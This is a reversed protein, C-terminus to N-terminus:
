LYDQGQAQRARLDDQMSALEAPMEPLPDTPRPPRRRGKTEKIRRQEEACEQVMRLSSLMQEQEDSMNRVPAAALGVAPAPREWEPTAMWTEVEHQHVTAERQGPDLASPAFGGTAGSWLPALQDGAQFPRGEGALLYSFSEHQTFGPLEVQAAAPITQVVQAGPIVAYSLDGARVINPIQVPPARPGLHATPAAASASAAGPSAAVGQQSTASEYGESHDSGQPSMAPGIM